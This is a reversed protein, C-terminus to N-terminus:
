IANETFFFLEMQELSELKKFLVEHSRKQRRVMQGRRREVRSAQGLLDPPLRDSLVSFLFEGNGPYIFYGSPKRNKIKPFRKAYEAV